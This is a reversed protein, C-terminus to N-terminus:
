GREIVERWRAEITDKIKGENAKVTPDMYPRPPLTVELGPVGFAGEVTGGLEQIRAQVGATGITGTWENKGTSVAPDANVSRAFDGSIMAPPEGPLSPTPTRGIHSKMMLATKVEREVIGTADNVGRRTAEGLRDMLAHMGASWGATDVKAKVQVM